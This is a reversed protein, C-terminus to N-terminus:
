RNKEIKVLIHKLVHTKTFNNDLSKFIAISLFLIKFHREHIQVNLILSVLMYDKQGKKM